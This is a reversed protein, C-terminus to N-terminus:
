GRTGISLLTQTSLCVALCQLCGSPWWSSFVHGLCTSVHTEMGHHQPKGPVAGTPVPCPSNLKTMPTVGQEQRTGRHEKTPASVPCPHASSEGPLPRSAALALYLKPDGVQQQVERRQKCVLKKITYGLM